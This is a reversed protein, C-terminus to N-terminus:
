LFFRFIEDLQRDAQVTVAHLVAPSLDLVEWARKGLDPVFFTGGYGSGMSIAMIDALHIISPELMNLANEPSHHDKIMEFSGPLKWEKLLVGAVTTHDFGILETEAEHACTASGSATRLM